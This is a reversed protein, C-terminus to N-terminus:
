HGAAFKGVPIACLVKLIAAINLRWHHVFGGYNRGRLAIGGEGSDRSLVHRRWINAHLLHLKKFTRGIAIGTKEELPLERFGPNIISSNLQIIGSVNFPVGGFVMCVQRCAPRATIKPM